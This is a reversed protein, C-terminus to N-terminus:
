QEQVVVNVSQSQTGGGHMIGRNIMCDKADRGVGLKIHDETVRCENTPDFGYWKNDSLVEVWAHSAGEGTLFGTVYRATIGDLHLLSIFIHAYDQCVGAGLKYAEEASTDVNTVLPKYTYSEHLGHMIYQVRELLQLDNPVNIKQYLSRIGEGAVNLGHPLSFIMALDENAEEEYDCLGTVANGEIHFEFVKHPAQNVGYIQINELGDKGTQYNSEPIMRIEIDSIRQRANSKPVCKITYSCNVVDMSYEIHMDYKFHLKKM